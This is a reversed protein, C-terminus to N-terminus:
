SQERGAEGRKGECRLGMGDVDWGYGSWLGSGGGRTGLGRWGLSLLVVRGLLVSRAMWSAM